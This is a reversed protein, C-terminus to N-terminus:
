GRNERGSGFRAGRHLTRLRHRPSQCGAPAARFPSGGRSRMRTAQPPPSGARSGPSRPTRGPEPPSPASGTAPQRAARTERVVGWLLGPGSRLALLHRVGHPLAPVAVASGDRGGGDDARGGLVPLRSPGLLGFVHSLQLRGLSRRRLCPEDVRPGPAGLEPDESSQPVTSCQIADRRALPQQVLAALGGESVSDVVDARKSAPLRRLFPVGPPEGGGSGRDHIVSSCTLGRSV